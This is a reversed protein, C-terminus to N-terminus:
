AHKVTFCKGNPCAKILSLKPSCQMPPHCVSLYFQLHLLTLMDTETSEWSFASISRHGRRWYQYVKEVSTQKILSVPVRTVEICCNHSGRYCNKERVVKQRFFEVNNDLIEHM